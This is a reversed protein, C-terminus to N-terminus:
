LSSALKMLMLDSSFDSGPMVWLAIASLILAMRIVRRGARLILQGSDTLKIASAVTNGPASATDHVFETVAAM